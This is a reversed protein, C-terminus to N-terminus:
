CCFSDGMKESLLWNNLHKLKRIGMIVSIEFKTNLQLIIEHEGLKSKMTLDIYSGRFDRKINQLFVRLWINKESSISQM